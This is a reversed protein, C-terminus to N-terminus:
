ISIFQQLVSALMQRTLPKCSCGSRVDTSLQLFLPNRCWAHEEGVKGKFVSQQFGRPLDLNKKKPPPDLAHTM